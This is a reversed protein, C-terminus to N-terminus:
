VKFHSCCFFFPVGLGFCFCFRMTCIGSGIEVSFNHYIITQQTTLLYRKNTKTVAAGVVVLWWGIENFFCLVETRWSKAACFTSFYVLGAVTHALTASASCNFKFKNIWLSLSGSGFNVFPSFPKAVYFDYFGKPCISFLAFSFTCFFV